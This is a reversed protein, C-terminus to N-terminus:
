KYNEEFKTCNKWLWISPFYIAMRREYKIGYLKLETAWKAIRSHIEPERHHKASSAGETHYDSIITHLTEAEEVHRLSLWNKWGKIRTQTGILSRSIYYVPGQIGEDECVLAGSVAFESIALYLFLTEGTVPKSLLPPSTLYRKLGQFAAEFKEGLCSDVGIKKFVQFSPKCKDMSWNHFNNLATLRGNLIHVEKVCTLLKMNLTTSIQNPNAKIGWQTVM